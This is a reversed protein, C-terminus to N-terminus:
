RKGDGATFAVLPHRAHPLCHSFYTDVLRQTLLQLSRKQPGGIEHAVLGIVSLRFLFAHHKSGNTM